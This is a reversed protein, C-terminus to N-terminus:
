IQQTSPCKLLRTALLSGITEISVISDSLKSAELVLLQIPITSKTAAVAKIEVGDPSRETVVFLQEGSKVRKAIDEKNYPGFGLIENEMHRESSQVVEEMQIVKPDFHFVGRPTEVRELGDPLDLEQTGIPFMQAKRKGSTMQQQQLLLTEKIEPINLGTDNYSLLHQLPRRVEVRQWLVM